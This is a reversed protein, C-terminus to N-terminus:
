QMMGDPMAALAELHEISNEVAVRLGCLYETQLRENAILGEVLLAHMDRFHQVLEGFQPSVGLRKAVVKAEAIAALLTAEIRALGDADM